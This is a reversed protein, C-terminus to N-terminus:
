AHRQNSGHPRWCCLRGQNRRASPEASLARQPSGASAARNAHEGDHQRPKFGPYEGPGGCKRRHSRGDANDIWSTLGRQYGVSYSGLCSHEGVVGEPVGSGGGRPSLRRTSDPRIFLQWGSRDKTHSSHQNCHQDLDGYRQARCTGSPRHDHRPGCSHRDSRLQRGRLM